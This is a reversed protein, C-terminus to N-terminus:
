SNSAVLEKYGTLHDRSDDVTCIFEKGLKAFHANAYICCASLSGIHAIQPQEPRLLIVIDLLTVLMPFLANLSQEPRVLMVIGLPTVLMPTQANQLQEPRVLTVIGLLTVLM